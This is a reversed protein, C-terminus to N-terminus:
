GETAPDEDFRRRLATWWARRSRIFLTLVLVQTGGEVVMTVIGDILLRQSGTALGDVVHGYAHVLLLVLAPLLYAAFVALAAFSGIVMIWAYVTVARRERPALHGLPHESRDRRLVGRLAHLVLVTADEFLNRANVLEAAVFYVDTRMFLQFQGAVGILLLVVAAGALRDPWEPLGAARLLVLVAIWTVDLVMGALYTRIRERRTAVWLGSVDTQAVLSYLRTGLSIRGPVGSARASVLHALEHMTVVVLFLITTGLLVVSTDSTFLLDRYHPRVGPDLVLAAAGLAVLLALALATAPHVLWRVHRQQLWGLSPERPPPAAEDPVGDVARVFGLDALQLVFGAVDVQIGDDAMDKEVHTVPRGESLAQIIRWGVVPLAVFDGTDARGVIVEDDDIRSLLPFFEVISSDVM